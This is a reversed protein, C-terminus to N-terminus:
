ARKVMPRLLPAASARVRREKDRSARAADRRKYHTYGVFGGSKGLCPSGKPSRCQPCAVVFICPEARVVHGNAKAFTVIDKEVAEREYKPPKPM